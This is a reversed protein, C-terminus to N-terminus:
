KQGVQRQEKCFLDDVTEFTRLFQVAGQPDGKNLEARIADRMEDVLPQLRRKNLAGVDRYVRAIANVINTFDVYTPVGNRIVNVAGHVRKTVGDDNFFYSELYGKASRDKDEKEAVVAIVDDSYKNWLAELVTALQGPERDTVRFSGM